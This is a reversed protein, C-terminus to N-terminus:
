AQFLPDLSDALQRLQESEAETIPRLERALEVARWFLEEEGPSVAAVVPQSLTWRLALEQERADTVPEYWCKAFRKREPDDRGKSWKQRALSKLALVAVQKELAKALVQPGFNGKYWTTFSVPFLISDFDYRDMAVLAAEASHASFGVHRIRGDAKAELIPEMAGGKGFVVDVDKEIDNLAHLQYLDFYDTRLLKLSRQLEERVKEASREHSKCALFCAKRYPELAPGLREESNGYTPAVDFYNVGQEVARAVTRNAHEQEANMVVIGGFGVVSLQEGGRGYRRRPLEARPSVGGGGPAAAHLTMAAFSTGLAALTMRELFERRSLYFDSDIM